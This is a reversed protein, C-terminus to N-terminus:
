DPAARGPKATVAMPNSAASPSLVAGGSARRQPKDMRPESKEGSIIGITKEKAKKIVTPDGGGIVSKAPHGASGGHKYCNKM